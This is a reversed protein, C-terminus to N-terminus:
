QGSDYAVGAHGSRVSVTISRSSGPDNLLPDLDIGGSSVTTTVRYTDGQPVGLNISGSRAALAVRQPPETFHLDLSGSSAAAQLEPAALNRGSLDGSTVQAVIRGSDGDLELAGSTARLALPGSLGVVKATGSSATVRVATASPVTVSLDSGCGPDGIGAVQPCRVTIRLTQGVLSREVQPRRLLWRTTQGVTVEHDPGATVTAGTNQLDLEVGTIPETYRVPASVSRQEVMVAWGEVTGALVAAGAVLVALGRWLRREV